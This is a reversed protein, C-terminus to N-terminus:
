NGDSPRSQTWPYTAWCNPTEYVTISYLPEAWNENMQRCGELYKDSAGENQWIHRLVPNKLDEYIQRALNEATPVDDLLIVKGFGVPMDSVRVIKGKGDIELTGLDPLAHDLRWLILGHDYKQDVHETLLAKMFSFDMVMGKESGAPKLDGVVRMIVKYRHGHINFCKSQHDPVRHAADFEMTREIIFKEM